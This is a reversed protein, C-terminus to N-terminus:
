RISHMTATGKVAFGGDPGEVWTDWTQTESGGAGERMRVCVKMVENVYLPALNRYNLEVLGVRVGKEAAVEAAQARVAMLMLSLSLPGHVLLDKHGEVEQAYRQDLHIAHANFTLASFQFLFKKDPTLSFSYTPALNKEMLRKLRTMDREKQMKREEVPAAADSARSCNQLTRAKAAEVDKRERMFVLTRTEDIEPNEEVEAVERALDGSRVRGYKRSIEVFVKEAGEVGAGKMVPDAVVKEVCVAHGGDLRLSEAGEGEWASGGEKKPFRVRGGAWMRRTFPAGPCHDAVTGDPMLESSTAQPGFYVLHHGVPLPVNSIPGAPTPRAERSTCTQSDSNSPSRSESRLLQRFEAPYHVEAPIRGALSTNLLHSPTPSIYDFIPNPRGPAILDRAAALYAEKDFHGTSFNRNRPIAKLAAARAANM